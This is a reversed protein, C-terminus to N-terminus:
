KILTSLTHSQGPAVTIGQKATIASEICFMTKYGDDPMDTFAAAGSIWPTWLVESDNGSNEMKLKRSFQKDDLLVSEPAKNYISDIPANILLTGDGTTVQGNKLSNSFTENLGSVTCFEPSSINLYTHLAGRYSFPKDGTNKSILELKLESTLSAKLVLEFEFPWLKRTEASDKLHLELELGQESEKIDAVSWKSTRAFGHSPLNDGLTEGAAGFWPWCVPVGGRIAKQDNYIATKSLWILPEQGVLQFHILHGGHLAFAANLKQHEIILFEYGSSDTQLSVSDSLTTKQELFLHSIM